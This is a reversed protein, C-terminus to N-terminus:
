LEGRSITEDLEIAWDMVTFRQWSAIWPSGQPPFAGDLIGRRREETLAGEETRPLRLPPSEMVPFGHPFGSKSTINIPIVGTKLPM